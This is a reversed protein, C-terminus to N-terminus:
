NRLKKEIEALRALMWQRRYDVDQQTTKDFGYLFVRRVVWLHSIKDAYNNPVRV